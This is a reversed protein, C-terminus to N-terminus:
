DFLSIADVLFERTAIDCFTSWSACDNRIKGVMLQNAGKYRQFMLRGDLVCVFRGTEDECWGLESDPKGSLKIYGAVDIRVPLKVEPVRLRYRKMFERGCEDLSYGADFRPRPEGVSEMAKRVTSIYM